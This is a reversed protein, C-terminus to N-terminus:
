AGPHDRRRADARRHCRDCLSSGMARIEVLGIGGLTTPTFEDPIHGDLSGSLDPLFLPELGFAEIVDRLEELDGPTLHCGPLVNM